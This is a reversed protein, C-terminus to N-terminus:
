LKRCLSTRRRVEVDHFPQASPASLSQLPPLLSAHPADSRAVSARVRGGNLVAEAISWMKRERESEARAVDGNPEHIQACKQEAIKDVVDRALPPIAGRLPRADFPDSELLRRVTHRLREHDEFHQERLCLHFANELSPERGGPAEASDRREALSHRAHKLLGLRRELCLGRIGPFSARLCEVLFGSLFWRDLRNEPM